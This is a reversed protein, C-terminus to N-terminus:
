IEEIGLSMLINSRLWEAEYEYEDGDYEFLRRLFVLLGPLDLKLYLVKPGFKPHRLGWHPSDIHTVAELRADIGVNIVKEAVKGEEGVLEMPFGEPCQENFADRIQEWPTSGVWDVPERV